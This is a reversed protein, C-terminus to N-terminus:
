RLERRSRILHRALWGVFAVVGAAASCVGTVSPSPPQATQWRVLCTTVFWAVSAAFGATAMGVWFRWRFQRASPFAAALVLLLGGAAVSVIFPARSSAYIPMNYNLSQSATLLLGVAALVATQLATTVENRESLDRLQQELDASGIQAMPEAYAVTNHAMDTADDIESSLWAVYERDAAVPGTLGEAWAHRDRIALTDAWDLLWARANHEAAKITQSMFRLDAEDAVGLATERRLKRLREERTKSPEPYTQEGREVQTALDYLRSQRDQTRRERFRRAEHRIKAMEWLYGPLPRLRADGHPWVWSDSVMERTTPALLVFVRELRDPDASRVEWLCCGPAPEILQDGATVLGDPLAAHAAAVLDAAAADGDYLAYFLRVQGTCDEDTAEGAAHRWDRDLERWDASGDPPALCVLFADLNTTTYRLAQRVAKRDPDHDPGPDDLSQVARPTNTPVRPLEATETIGLAGCATVIRDATAVDRLRHFYTYVHLAYKHLRM